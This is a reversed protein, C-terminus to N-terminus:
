LLYNETESTVSFLSSAAEIIGDAEAEDFYIAGISFEPSYINIVQRSRCLKKTLGKLVLQGSDAQGYPNQGRLEVKYDVLQADHPSAIEKRDFRNFTVLDNTVAWSWSPAQDALDHKCVGLGKYWTLGHRFDTSWIGALYEGGIATHVFGALASFAPLKDSNFSLKRSSYECVLGYYDELILNLDPKTLPSQHSHLFSSLGTYSQDEPMRTGTPMGDASQFGHLCKWYIQRSGYYLYSSILCERTIGM